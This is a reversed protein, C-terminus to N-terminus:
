DDSNVRGLIEDIDYDSPLVSLIKSLELFTRRDIDGRDRAAELYELMKQQKLSLGFNTDAIVSLEGPKLPILSSVVYPVHNYAEEFTMNTEMVLASLDSLEESASIVRSTATENGPRSIQANVTRVAMQYALENLDEKGPTASDAPKALVSSTIEKDEFAVVNGRIRDM